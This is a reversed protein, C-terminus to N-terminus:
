VCGVVGRIFVGLTSDESMEIEAVLLDKLGPSM